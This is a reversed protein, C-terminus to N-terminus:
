PSAVGYQNLTLGSYKGTQRSEFDIQELYAWIIVSCCFSIRLMM